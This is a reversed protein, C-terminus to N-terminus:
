ELFVHAIDKAMQAYGAPAPHLRSPDQMVSAAQIPVASIGFNRFIDEVAEKGKEPSTGGAFAPPYIWMIENSGVLRGFMETADQEESSPDAQAADNTGLSILTLAYQAGLPARDKMSRISAGSKVIADLTVGHQGLEHRLPGELGVGISDGLLLVRDGASLVAPPPTPTSPENDKKYARYAGFAAASALVITGLTGIIMITDKKLM